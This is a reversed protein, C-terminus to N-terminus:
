MSFLASLGALAENVAQISVYTSYVNWIWTLVTLGIATFILAQWPEKKSGPPDVAAPDCPDAGYANDGKRGPICFFVLCTVGAIFSLISGLIPIASCPFGTVALTIVAIWGTAGVDHWRRITVPIMFLGLITIPLTMIIYVTLSRMAFTLFGAIMGLVISPLLVMLVASWYEGRRARGNVETFYKLPNMFKKIVEGFPAAPLVSPTARPPETAASVTVTANEEESM